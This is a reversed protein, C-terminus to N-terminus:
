IATLAAERRRRRYAGAAVAAGAGLISVPVLVALAILAVGASVELVRAADHAADGPSWSGGGPAAVQKHPRGVVDVQITALDARRRVANFSRQLRNLARRNDALRARLSSVEQATTAKGLARLLGRREARADALRSSASDYAGTIDDASQELARVHGLKSLRALADDLKATPVRLVFSASGNGDGTRVQSVPVFGGTAQTARVVGDAARQVDTTTLELRTTREVRRGSATSAAPPAAKASPAPTTSPAAKASPAPAALESGASTSPAPATGSGGAATSGAGAAGSSERQAPAAQQAVQDPDSSGGGGILVVAVLAALLCGAVGLAPLLARRPFRARPLLGRRAGSPEALGSGGEPASARPLFRRRAGSAGRAFGSEVREDLRARFAPTMAPADARVDQVLAVLAPEAAPDDALAAELAELEAAVAPDLTTERRRM